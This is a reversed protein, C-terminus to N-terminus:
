RVTATVDGVREVTSGMWTLPLYQGIPLTDRLGPCAHLEALSYDPSPFDHGCGLTGAARRGATYVVRVM